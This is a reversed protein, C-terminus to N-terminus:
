HGIIYHLILKLDARQSCTGPIYNVTFYKSWTNVIDPPFLEYTLDWRANDIYVPSVPCYSELM